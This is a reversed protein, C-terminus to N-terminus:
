FYKNVVKDLIVKSNSYSFVFYFTLRLAQNTHRYYKRAIYFALSLAVVDNGFYKQLLNVVREGLVSKWINEESIKELFTLLANSITSLKEVAVM